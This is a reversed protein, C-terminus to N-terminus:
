KKLFTFAVFVLFKRNKSSYTYIVMEICEVTVADEDIPSTKEM